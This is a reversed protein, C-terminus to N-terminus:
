RQEALLQQLGPSDRLAAFDDDDALRKDIASNEQMAKRLYSLACDEMGAVACSRARAYNVEANQQTTLMMAPNDHDDFIHPDLALAQRYAESGDEFQHQALLNTGLNKLYVASGPASRLARRYLQEAQTHEGVQDLATAADNLIRANNPDLRLAEKYCRIASDFGLLMQYAVGMRAWLMATPTAVRSYIELAAQYRHQAMLEDGIKEAAFLSVPRTTASISGAVAPRFSEGASNTNLQATSAAPIALCLAFISVFLPCIPNRM